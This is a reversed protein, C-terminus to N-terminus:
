LRKNTKLKKYDFILVILLLREVRKNNDIM